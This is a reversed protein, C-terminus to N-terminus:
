EASGYDEMRAGCDPCFPPLVEETVGCWWPLGGCCSCRYEAPTIYGYEKKLWKGTKQGRIQNAIQALKDSIADPTWGDECFFAFRCGKCMDSDRCDKGYDRFMGILEYVGDDVATQKAENRLLVAKKKM